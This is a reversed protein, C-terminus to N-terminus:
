KSQSREQELLNQISEVSEKISQELSVWAIEGFVSQMKETSSTVPFDESEEPNWGTSTIGAGYQPFHKKIIRALQNDSLPGANIIFRGAAQPNTAASVHLAACDRVDIWDDFRMRPRLFERPKVQSCFTYIIELSDNLEKPNSAPVLLPGYVFPPNLSVATWSPNHTKM